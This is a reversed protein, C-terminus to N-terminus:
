HYDEIGVVVVVKAAGKGEYELILRWQDNLRMSHQHDRPPELKKFHLSRMAHLVREDPANRIANMVKRFARPIGTPYGGDMGSDSELAEVDGDKFRVKM